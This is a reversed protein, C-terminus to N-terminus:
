SMGLAEPDDQIGRMLMGDAAGVARVATGIM